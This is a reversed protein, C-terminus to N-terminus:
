NMRPCPHGGPDVPRGCFRCPPRGGAVVARAHGVFAAVQARTLRFRAQAAQEGAQVEEEALLEEAVLLMRDATEDWAVALTGVAWEAIVPSVLELMTPVAAPEPTPLDALLGDLYDALAGVQQKECKLTVVHGDGQAQLYFVREGPDGVTGATFVMPEPLDFSANM